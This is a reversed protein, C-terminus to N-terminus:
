FDGYSWLPNQDIALVRWWFIQIYHISGKSQKDSCKQLGPFILDLTTWRWSWVTPHSPLSTWSTTIQERTSPPVTPPHHRGSPHPKNKPFRPSNPLCYQRRWHRHPDRNRRVSHSRHGRGHRYRRHCLRFGLYTTDSDFGCGVLSLRKQQTTNNRVWRM